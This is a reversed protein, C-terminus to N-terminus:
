LEAAVAAFAPREEPEQVWCRQVLKGLASAAEDAELLPRKELVMAKIIAQESYERGKDDKEWPVRGTLVEWALM